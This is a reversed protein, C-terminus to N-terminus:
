ISKIKEIIDTTSYGDIFPVLVVEGNYNKVQKHGIITEITYDGGKALVDPKLIKILNIPTEESFLIIADVFCLSALLFARAQEDVIPRTSGKNKKISNDSNLGIILKNGLDATKALVEIHGKHVIDFCGNTFIIKDGNERWTGIKDELEEISFLKSKINTLHSM